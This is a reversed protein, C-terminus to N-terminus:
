RLLLYKGAHMRSGGYWMMNRGKETFANHYGTQGGINVWLFVANRWEVVGSYKSFRPLTNGNALAMVAAKGYDDVCKCLYQSLFMDVNANLQSSSNACASTAKLQPESDVFDPAIFEGKISTVPATLLVEDTEIKARKPVTSISPERFNFEKGEFRSSRRTPPLVAPAIRSVKRTSKIPKSKKSDVGISSLYENNKDINELRRREYDSIEM